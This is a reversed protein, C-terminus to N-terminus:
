MKKQMGVAQALFAGVTRRWEDPHVVVYSDHGASAFEHFEKPGAAADFVRRGEALTARPDDRGHLFLAPCRLARAYAVPRHAFGNFGWQRGGWFVLLEASPFSPVGLAQFRHRVTNLLTDFVAEVIVADPRIGCASVARLVAAAGMSQGFLIVAAHPLRGRAYRVAAAVDEAERVGITTYSASSGGSGRFDVLLVGVGLALLARAEPLLTAKDGAYGHFLIVLPKDRGRDVYWASLVVGDDGPITLCRTDAALDAPLNTSAPRPVNVGAMLVRCKALRSLREPQHTRPGSATFHTMARAHNYASVNLLGFGAALVLLLGRLWRRAKRAPGDSPQATAETKV